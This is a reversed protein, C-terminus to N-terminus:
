SARGPVPHALPKSLTSLPTQAISMTPEVRDDPTVVSNSLLKEPLRRINSIRPRAGAAANPLKVPSRCIDFVGPCSVSATEFHKDQVIIVFALVCVTRGMM